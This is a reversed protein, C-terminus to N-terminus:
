PLQSPVHPPTNVSEPTSGPTPASAVARKGRESRANQAFKLGAEHLGDEQEKDSWESRYYDEESKSPRPPFLMGGWQPFYVLFLPLCCCIIMIGM